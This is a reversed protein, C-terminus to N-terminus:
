NGLEALSHFQWRTRSLPLKRGHALGASGREPRGHAERLLASFRPFPALSRKVSVFPKRGTLRSGLM